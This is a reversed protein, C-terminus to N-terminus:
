HGDLDYFLLLRVQMQTTGPIGHAAMADFYEMRAQYFLGALTMRRGSIHLYMHIVVGNGLLMEM